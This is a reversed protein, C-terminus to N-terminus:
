GLNLSTKKLAQRITEHSISDVHELEVMQEALLRLTWRKTGDPSAGCALVILEAEEKGQIKRREPREKPYKVSLVGQLGEEVFRKKIRIVTRRSISFMEAVKEDTILEQEDRRDVRLLVHAATQEYASHKGTKIRKMLIERQEDTLYVPYVINAM